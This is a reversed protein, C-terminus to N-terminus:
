GDFVISRCLLIRLDNVLMVSELNQIFVINEPCNTRYAHRLLRFPVVFRAVHYVVACQFDHWLGPHRM